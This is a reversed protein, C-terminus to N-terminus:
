YNITEPNPDPIVDVINQNVNTICGNGDTVSVSQVLEITTSIDEGSYGVGVLELEKTFGKSVGEVMNAILARYLGHQARHPKSESARELTITGEEVTVAIADSLEQSLEGLKGKVTIVNGNVNVEVGQPVSIPAKGIRSM